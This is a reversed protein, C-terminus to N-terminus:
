LIRLSPATTHKFGRHANHASCLSNSFMYHQGHATTFSNLQLNNFLLQHQFCFTPLSENM